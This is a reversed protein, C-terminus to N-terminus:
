TFNNRVTTDVTISGGGPSDMVDVSDMRMKRLCLQLHSYLVSVCHLCFHLLSKTRKLKKM